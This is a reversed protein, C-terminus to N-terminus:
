PQFIFKVRRFRQRFPLLHDNLVKIYDQSAMRCSIFALELKGMGSFAGWVMLSGGGFNQSAFYRKEKRLDHWYHAFGDPGDLNFKKEDSFIM